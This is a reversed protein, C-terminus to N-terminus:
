SATAVAILNPSASSYPDLEYTGFIQGVRFGASRLLLELEFRYTYHLQLHSRTRRLIGADVEDYNLSLDLLQEAEDDWVASWV